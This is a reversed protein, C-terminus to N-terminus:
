FAPKRPAPRRFYGLLWRRTGSCTGSCNRAIRLASNVERFPAYGEGYASLRDGSVPSGTPGTIFDLRTVAAHPRAANKNARVHLM